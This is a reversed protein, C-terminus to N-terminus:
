HLNFQSQLFIIEDDLIVVKSGGSLSVTSAFNKIKLESHIILRGEDSGNIVIYDAGLENCVNRRQKVLM